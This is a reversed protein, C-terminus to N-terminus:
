GTVITYHFLAGFCEQVRLLLYKAEVFLKIKKRILQKVVYSKTHRLNKWVNDPSCLMAVMELPLHSFQLPLKM